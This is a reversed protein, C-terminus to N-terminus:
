PSTPSPQPTPTPAPKPKRFLGQIFNGVEGSLGRIGTLKELLDDTNPKTLTGTVKFAIEKYGPLDSEKFNRSLLGQLNRQLKENIQLKADINLRGDFRVPGDGSLILNRSKLTLEDIHTKRHGITVRLKATELQLLQLEDIGLVEGIKQIFELPRLTGNALSFAGQGAYTEESGLIGALELNGSFAGKSGDAPLGAEELMVPIQAQDLTIAISSERTTLNANAIGKVQGRAFEATIPSLNLQDGALAYDAKASRVVFRQVLVIEEARLQGRIDTESAIASDTNLGRIEILPDGNDDRILVVGNRLAFQKVAIRLPKAEPSAPASKTFPTVAPAPANTAPTGATVAPPLATVADPIEQRPSPLAIGRNADIVLMPDNLTVSTVEVRGNLLLWWNLRANMSAAEFLHLEPSQPDFIILGSLTLGAWPTLSTGSIKLPAGIAREVDNRVRAQVEASQLYLNAGVFTVVVLGVLIAAAILIIKSFRHM